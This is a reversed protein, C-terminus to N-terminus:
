RLRMSHWKLGKRSNTNFMIRGPWGFRRSGARADGGGSRNHRARVKRGSSALVLVSALRRLAPQAKPGRPV